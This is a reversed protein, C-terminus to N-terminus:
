IIEKWKIPVFSTFGFSTDKKVNIKVWKYEGSRLYYAVDYNTGDSVLVEVGEEPYTDIGTMFEKQKDEKIIVWDSM